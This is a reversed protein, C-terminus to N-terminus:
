GPQKKNESPKASKLLPLAEEPRQWQLNDLDWLTYRLFQVRAEEEGIHWAAIGLHAPFLVEPLQLAQGIEQDNVFTRLQRKQIVVLLENAQDGPRIAEDRIRKQTPLALSAKKWPLEEVALEGNNWVKVGLCYRAPRTGLWLSMATRNGSKARGALRCAFNNYTESHWDKLARDVSEPRAHFLYVTERGWQRESKLEPYVKPSKGREYVFPSKGADSFDHDIVPKLKPLDAPLKAEAPPREQPYDLDWVTFRTTVVRAESSGDYFSGRAPRTPVLEEPWDIADGILRDNVFVRMRGKQVIVLLENAQDAPRLADKCEWKQGPSLVRCLFPPPASALELVGDSWLFVGGSQKKFEPDGLWETIAVRDKSEFRGTIRCAFNRVYFNVYGYSHRGNMGKPAELYHDIRGVGAVSYAKMRGKPNEGSGWSEMDAVTDDVVPKLRTLDAPMLTGPLAGRSGGFPKPASPSDIRAEGSKLNTPQNKMGEPSRDWWLFLAVLVSAVALLALVLRWRRSRPLAQRGVPASDQEKALLEGRVEALQHRKDKPLTGLQLEALLEGLVEALEAATQYRDAPDRVHLKAIVTALPEPVEPNLQRVPRPTAEAVSRLVASRTEGRFPPRGTSMEYLVSGLSFLDSRQDVAGGDAQEPSTYMPTGVMCGTDTLHVDEAARALGFDALKAREVGNELLINAPKIDRHVLGQAHAAALGRATQMGIRLVEKVALAGSRRLREQLSVGCVYQMVLYPLGQAEEVAHITVVHDHSVAAAAQAERTFRQRALASAALQPAIVKIAVVRHLREDRARFVIGMGGRGVVELVEYHGLKGLVGPRDSVQLFGPPL